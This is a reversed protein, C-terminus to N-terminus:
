NPTSSLFKCMESFMPREVAQYRKMTGAPGLLPFGPAPFFDPGHEPEQVNGGRSHFSPRQASDNRSHGPSPSYGPHQVRQDDHLPRQQALSVSVDSSDSIRSIATSGSARSVRDAMRYGTSRDKPYSQPTQPLPWPPYGDPGPLDGRYPDGRDTVPTQPSHYSPTGNTESLAPEPTM